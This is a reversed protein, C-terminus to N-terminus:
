HLEFSQNLSDSYSKNIKNLNYILIIMIILIIISIVASVSIIIKNDYKEILENIINKSKNTIDFLLYPFSSEDIKKTENNIENLQENIEVKFENFENTINTLSNSVNEEFNNTQTCSQSLKIVNSNGISLIAGTIEQSMNCISISSNSFNALKIADIIDNEIIKQENKIKDIEKQSSISEFPKSFKKGINANWFDIINKINQVDIRNFQVNCCAKLSESNVGLIDDNSVQGSLFSKITSLINSLCIVELSEDKNNRALSGIMNGDEYINDYLNPKYSYKNSTRAVYDLKNWVIASAIINLRNNDKSIFEYINRANNKVGTKLFEEIINLVDNTNHWTFKGAQNYVPFYKFWENDNYMNVYEQTSRPDIELLNYTEIKEKLNMITLLRQYDNPFIWQKYILNQNIESIQEKYKLSISSLISQMTEFKSNDKNM